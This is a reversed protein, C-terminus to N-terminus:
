DLPPSWPRLTGAIVDRAGDSTELRLAGSPALGLLTGELEDVRVREGVLALRAAVAAVLEREGGRALLDVRREVHALLEALVAGRDLRAASPDTLRRTALISTADAALEPAWELRNVDLGIGIVIPGLRTGMSSAEVLIGACKRRGIWVDNPWKVRVDDVLTAVLEAVGLGVALTLLSVRAPPLETREVISLYLDEGAPSSWARGRAGRGRTQANAVIVHGRPAGADAAVRADDNTSGTEARVELSRGLVRTSLLSRARELELIAQESM